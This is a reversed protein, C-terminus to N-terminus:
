LGSVMETIREAIGAGDLRKDRLLEDRTGLAGGSDAFDEEVALATTKARCNRRRAFASAYEGFGGSRIGEEIFAAMDYRNLLEALYEEDVPKLFRLNYLDAEIGNDRLRQMADFAQPYLSGTFALCVRSGPTQRLWM